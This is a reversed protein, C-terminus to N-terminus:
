QLSQLHFIMRHFMSDIIKAQCFRPPFSVFNSLSWLLRPLTKQIKMKNPDHGASECMLHPTKARDPYDTDSQIQMKDYPIHASWTDHLTSGDVMPGEQTRSNDKVHQALSAEVPPLLRDSNIVPIFETRRTKPAQSELIRHMKLDDLLLCQKGCM